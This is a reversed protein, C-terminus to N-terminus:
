AEKSSVVTILVGPGIQPDAWLKRVRCDRVQADNVFVVGELGDLVARALKDVDGSHAGIPGDEQRAKTLKQPPQIAFVLLLEVPGSLPARDWQRRAEDNVAHRWGKHDAGGSERVAFKGNKLPIVDKSGQTKAHGAVRFTKLIM